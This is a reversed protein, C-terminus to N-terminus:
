DTYSLDFTGNTLNKTAGMPSYLKCSFTGRAKNTDANNELITLTGPDENTSEYIMGGVTLYVFNTSADIQYTGPEADDLEMTLSSASQNIGTIVLQIAFNANITLNACWKSDDVNVELINVMSNECPDTELEDEKCGTLFVGAFALFFLTLTFTSKKM